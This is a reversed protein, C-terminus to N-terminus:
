KILVNLKKVADQKQSENIHTYIKATTRIDSHGMLVSATKLPVGKEALLTCFSHRLGHFTIPEIGIQKQIEKWRTNLRDGRVASCTNSTFLFAESNFPIKLRLHKEKEKNVHKKIDFILNEPLPVKRISEETKPKSVVIRNKGDIKTRNLSKNINIINDTLNIDEHSLALIEGQRLGTFLAFVYIFLNLDKKYAKILVEIDKSTLAEKKEKKKHVPRKVSDM